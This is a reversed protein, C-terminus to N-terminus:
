CAARQGPTDEGHAREGFRWSVWVVEGSTGLRFSAHNHTTEHRNPPVVETAKQERRTACWSGSVGARQM